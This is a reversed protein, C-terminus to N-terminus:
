QNQMLYSAIVNKMLTAVTMKGTGNPMPTVARVYDRVNEFDVDGYIKEDKRTMGVDIVISDPNFYDKTFYKAKGIATVVIDACKTMEKLNQTKSHCVMVSADKKLMMLALPKGVILSRNVICVNKGEISFGYYELLDIVGKPTCPYHYPERHMLLGLNIPTIGDVDKVPDIASLIKLTDYDEPLPLQVIIGNGKEQNLEVIFNILDSEKEIGFRHVHVECGIKHGAKAKNRVYVDSEKNEGVVVIDLRPSLKEEEIKLRLSELIEEYLAKAAMVVAM